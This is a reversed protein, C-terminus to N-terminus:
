FFMNRVPNYEVGRLESSIESLKEYHMNFIHGLERAGRTYRCENELFLMLTRTSELLEIELEKQLKRRKRWSLKKKM